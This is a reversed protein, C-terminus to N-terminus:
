LHLLEQVVYHNKIYTHHTVQPYNKLINKVIQLGNGHGPGKTTYGSGSLSDLTLGNNSFSNMLLFNIGTEDAGFTCEMLKEESEAAAEIANDFYIGAVRIFDVPEMQLKSIEASVSFKITIGMSRAAYAKSLCLGKIEPIKLFDLSLYESFIRINQYLPFLSTCFYNEIGQLDKAKIYGSLALLVNHYDHKFKRLEQYSADLSASYEQAMSLYTLRKQYEQNRFVERIIFFM